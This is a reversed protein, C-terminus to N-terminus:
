YACFPMDTVGSAAAQQTWAKGTWYSDSVQCNYLIWGLNMVTLKVWQLMSDNCEKGREVGIGSDDTHQNVEPLASKYM